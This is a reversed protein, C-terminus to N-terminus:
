KMSSPTVKFTGAESVSRISRDYMSEAYSPPIVFDGASTLKVRYTLDRVTSDFSGYYVVRDERIDIYEARWNYATRSVSSRIVEFGGPLLDIVAINTLRKNGLGRVRLRVTVEKGQEFTTVKNGQEDLFDRHIEIGERVAKEPLNVDFGSQENLYFLAQKGDVNVRQANVSYDASKFPRNEAKLQQVKTEANKSNAILASFAIDENFNTSGTSDTLVLKSYAGLALISYASSITNYEGKFIRNTLKM